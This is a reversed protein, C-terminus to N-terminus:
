SSAVGRGGRHRSVGGGVIVRCGARWSSAVGAGRRSSAVGRGGRHRSVGGGVLQPRHTTDGPHQRHAAPGAGGHDLPGDCSIHM